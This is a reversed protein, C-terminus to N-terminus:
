KSLTDALIIFYLPIYTDSETLAMRDNIDM